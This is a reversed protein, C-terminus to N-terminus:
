TLDERGLWAILLAARAAIAVALATATTRPPITLGNGIAALLHNDSFSDGPRIRRSRAGVVSGTGCLHGRRRDSVHRLAEFRHDGALEVLINL